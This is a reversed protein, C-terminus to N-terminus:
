RFRPGDGRRAAFWQQLFRDNAGTFPDLQGPTARLVPEQGSAVLAYVLASLALVFLTLVRFRDGHPDLYRGSRTPDAARESGEDRAQNAAM